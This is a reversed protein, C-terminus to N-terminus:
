FKLNDIVKTYKCDKLIDEIIAKDIKKRSIKNILEKSDVITNSIIFYQDALAKVKEKQFGVVANWLDSDTAIGAM